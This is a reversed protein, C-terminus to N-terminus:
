EMMLNELRLRAARVTTARVWGGVVEMSSGGGSSMSEGASGGGSLSQEEVRPMMLGHM